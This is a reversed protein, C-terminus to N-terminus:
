QFIYICGSRDVSISMSYPFELLAVDVVCDLHNKLLQQQQASIVTSRPMRGAPPAPSVGDRIRGDNKHNSLSTGNTTSPSAIGIKGPKEIVVSLSTTPHSSSIVSKAELMDLGSIVCSSQTRACDWYRIKRDLGGTVIFGSKIYTGDKNKKTSPQNDFGVAMARIGRNTNNTEIATAFRGLMGEPRDEDVPWAEYSKASLTTSTSITSHYVERCTATEIDWVTIETESTGGAVCVWKEEKNVSPHLSLRYIATAGPLGWSKVRIRFRLDYLDLVGHSTGLLLWMKQSDLLFCTPTGHHIPNTVTWLFDLSHCKLDVALVRSYNTALLLTSATESRFHESWVVFEGEPLKYDRLIRLKGYRGHAYEVKVVNITGDSGSSVFCHTNEIFCLSTIKCHPHKHVQRAKHTLNKELRASDWVKVNGDEGATLFFVHDPSVAVRTIPGTHDAITAVLIGEPRWIRETAISSNRDDEKTKSISTVKPGFEVLDASYSDLYVNDLMRLVSPDNGTYSHAARFRAENALAAQQQDKTLGLPSPQSASHVFPGEVKGFANTSTTSTEATSKITDKRSILSMASSRHKIAHSPYQQIESSKVPSGSASTEDVSNTDSLTQYTNPSIQSAISEPIPITPLGTNSTSMKARHSNYASTKRRSIPDDITMSADMLADAITHHSRETSEIDSKLDRLPNELAQKEDFMVTTVSINHERLKQISDLQETRKSVDAPIRRATRWIYERLALLKFDDAETMGLTRLRALWQEDEDNLVTQKIANRSTDRSGMTPLPQQTTVSSFPGLKDVPKWFLGREVKNAWDCAAKFVQRSLPKKLIDLLELLELCAYSPENHKTPLASSQLGKTSHRSSAELSAEISVYVASVTTKLYPRILPIAICHLDAKSLFKTSLSIAMAASESIWINPHMTFRAVIEIIEWTTSRRFLGLGAMNALSRLVREVIHEEADTLAQLMLPLIFEELSATGLFTAVAVINDFFDCKLMWDRDNLYTNLHTLIIDNSETTGFFMCLEPVSKLFARRVGSDPDTILEKTHSAFITVLESRARDFSDANVPSAVGAVEEIDPDAAALTGDAKLTSVMDLFRGATTALSGLCSAYTARVLSSPSHEQTTLFGRTRHLLYQSFLNANIPSVVTVLALLQTLSRMAAVRVNDSEDNLLSVYYPLVRDLKIEDTLREAFALLLDCARIRSTTRATSRISVVVLNLFILTRDDAPQKAVVAATHENNPIDLRVPLVGLGIKSADRSHDVQKDSEYGLFYSIKDFDYYIRDIREDAEGLNAYLGSMPYRGSFPDSLLAMYHTLFSYFYDPFVKQKWVDLYQEASFRHEPDVQIMHAILERVDKDVIRHLMFKVPDYTGQKFAFMQALTFIPTELFLEAIVCGASFIDMAWTVKVDSKQAAGPPLFREPALYCTRRSATDFYYTFTAPNDEPLTAPKFSSSFDSLYLWNWSTVLVNESKIDGHYVDKAHCDRLACLLQFALWKKEIDELFPRNSMRDYLSSHFFQRVLYGNTDTELIRQYGLANPVDALLKREGPM